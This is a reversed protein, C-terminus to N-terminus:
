QEAEGYLEIFEEFCIGESMIFSAYEVGVYRYHWPEFIIKTIETKDEPYRLIFGYKAANAKLWKAADTNAYGSNLRQYSPTVVDMALGTHHESTGPVAVITAAVRRADEKSYGEEILDDIKNNFLRTQLDIDRISSCIQLDIGDKKADAIMQIAYPAVRSDLYYNGQVQMKDITFGDPLYHDPNVLIMNWLSTDVKTTGDFYVTEESQPESQQTDVSQTEASQIETPQNKVSETATESAESQLTSEVAETQASSQSETEETVDPVTEESVTETAATSESENASETEEPVNLASESNEGSPIDPETIVTNETIQDDTLASLDESVDPEGVSKGDIASTGVVFIILALGAIIFLVGVVPILFNKKM